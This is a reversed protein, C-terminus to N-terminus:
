GEREKKTTEDLHTVEIGAFLEPFLPDLHPPSWIYSRCIFIYDVRVGESIQHISLAPINVEGGLSYVESNRRNVWTIKVNPRDETLVTAWNGCNVREDDHRYHYMDHHFDINIVGFEEDPETREMIFVYIREHSEAVVTEVPNNRLMRQVKSLYEHNIGVKYLNTNEYLGRWIHQKMFHPLREDSGQPFMKERDSNSINVFFDWDISLFRKM